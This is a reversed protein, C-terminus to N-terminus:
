WSPAQTSPVRQAYRRSARWVEITVNVAAESMEGENMM